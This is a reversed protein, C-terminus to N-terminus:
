ASGGGGVQEEFEEVSMRNLIAAPETYGSYDEQDHTLIGADRRTRHLTSRANSTSKCLEWDTSIEDVSEVGDFCSSCLEFFELPISSDIVRFQANNPCASEVLEPSVASV